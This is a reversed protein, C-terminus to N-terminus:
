PDFSKNSGIRETEQFDLSEQTDASTRWLQHDKFRTFDLSLITLKSTMRTGSNFGHHVARDCFFKEIDVKTHQTRKHTALLRDISKATRIEPVRYHRPQAFSPEMGESHLVAPLLM